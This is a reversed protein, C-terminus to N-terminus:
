PQRDSNRVPDRPSALVALVILVFAPMPHLYRFSVIASFLLQGISLGLAYLLLVNGVGARGSRRLRWWAAAGLPILALWCAVLWASASVFWRRTPSEVSQTGAVSANLVTRALEQVDPGYPRDYAGDVWLRERYATRDFYRAANDLGLRLPGLRDDHLARRALHGALTDGASDARFGLLDALGYPAWMQNNRQAPDSLDYRLLSLVNPSIGEAILHQPKVLPAVLGFEMLGSRANWAPTTDFRHAVFQRYGGHLGALLSLAVLLHVAIRRIDTRVDHQRSWLLLPAVVGMVLVLPLLNLRLSVALLGLCQMAVLWRVRGTTVYEVTSCFMAVLALGGCAEAMVMREYFVQAPDCAFLAAAALAIWEPIGFRRRLTLWLLWASAVGLLSQAVILAFPSQWPMVAYRLFFPYIFSRDPAMWDSSAALLYSASDGIFLRPMPDAWLWLAKISLLLLLARLWRLRQDSHSISDALM